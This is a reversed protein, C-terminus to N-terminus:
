PLSPSSGAANGSGVTLYASTGPYALSGPRPFQDAVLTAKDTAAANMPALGAQELIRVAEQLPKGRVDPVETPRQSAPALEFTWVAIATARAVKTGPQPSQLYIVDRQIDHRWNQPALYYVGVQVELDRLLVLQKATATREGSLKPVESEPPATWLCAALGLAVAYM